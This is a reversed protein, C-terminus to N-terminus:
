EEGLYFFYDRYLPFTSVQKSNQKWFKTKLLDLCFLNEFFLINKIREFEGGGDHKHVTSWLVDGSDERIAGQARFSDLLRYIMM